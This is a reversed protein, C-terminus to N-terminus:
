GAKDGLSNVVVHGGRSEEEELELERQLEPEGRDEGREGQGVGRGRSLAKCSMPTAPRHRQLSKKLRGHTHQTSQSIMLPPLPHLTLPLRTNPISASGLDGARFM